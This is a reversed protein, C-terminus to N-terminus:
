DETEDIVWNEELLQYLTDKNASAAYPIKRAELRRKIEAVTIDDEAELEDPEGDAYGGETVKSETVKTDTVTTQGARPNVRMNEPGEEVPTNKSKKTDAYHEVWGDPVQEESDFIQGEGTKPNYRWSPWYEMVDPTTPLIALPRKKTILHNAM